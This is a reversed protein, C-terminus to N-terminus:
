KPITDPCGTYKILGNAYAEKAIDNYSQPYFEVLMFGDHFQHYLEAQNFPFTETDMVWVMKKGLTDKDNGNGAVLDLGKSKAVTQLKSFLPNSVGGPLGILSRYEPGRDGVDPRDANVFLNFYVDAFDSISSLPISMGVVESHGLDGYESVGMLNHYCVQRNDNAFKQDNSGSNKNVKGYSKGGAYGARSTLQNNSRHLLKQEASVFEHQVHWFCGVGFYVDVNNSDSTTTTATTSSIVITSPNTIINNDNALVSLSSSSLVLPLIALSKLVCQYMNNDNKISYM